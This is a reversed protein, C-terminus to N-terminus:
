DDFKVSKSKLVDIHFKKSGKNSTQFGLGVGRNQNFDQAKEFQNELAIKYMREQTKNMAMNPMPVGSSDHKVDKNSMGANLKFKAQLQNKNAGPKQGGLLKMFKNQREKDGFDATQWQGVACNENAKEEVPPGNKLNSHSDSNEHIKEGNEAEEQKIDISEDKKSRKKRRINRKPEIMEEVSNVEDVKRKLAKVELDNDQSGNSSQAQNTEDLDKRHKRKKKKHTYTLEEGEVSETTDNNNLNTNDKNLVVDDVTQKSELAHKKNKKKKINANEQVNNDEICGENNNLKEDERLKEKKMKKSKKKPVSIETEDVVTIGISQASLCTLSGETDDNM